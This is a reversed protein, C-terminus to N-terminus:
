TVPFYPAELTPRKCLENINRTSLSDQIRVNSFETVSEAFEPIVNVWILLSGLSEPRILVRCLHAILYEQRCKRIQASQSIGPQSILLSPIHAQPRYLDPTAAAHAQVHAVTM